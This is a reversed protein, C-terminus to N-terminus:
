LTYTTSLTFKVIEKIQIKTIIAEISRKQIPAVKTSPIPPGKTADTKRKMTAM